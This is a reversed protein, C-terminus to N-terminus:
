VISRRRGTVLRYIGLLLMAGIVSAIVGPGVDGERYFGLTRGIFAAFMAGGIGLLATVIIGGPDKGPMLLKAIAGVILGVILSWIIHM